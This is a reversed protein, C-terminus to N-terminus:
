LGISFLQCHKLFFISIKLIGFDYHGLKFCFLRMHLLTKTLFVVFDWNQPFSDLGKVAVILSQICLFLFKAFLEKGWFLGIGLHFLFKLFLLFFHGFVFKLKFFKGFNSLFSESFIGWFVLLLVTIKYKIWLTLWSVWEPFRFVWFLLQCVWSFGQHPLFAFRHNSM